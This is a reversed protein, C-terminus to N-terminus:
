RRWNTSEDGAREKAFLVSRNDSAITYGYKIASAVYKSGSSILSSVAGITAGIATGVGPIVSGILAGTYASSGASILDSMIDLSANLVQTSAVANIDGTTNTINSQYINWATHAINKTTSIAKNIAYKKLKDIKLTESNKNETETGLIDETEEPTADVLKIYIEGNM